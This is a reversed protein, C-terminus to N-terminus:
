WEQNQFRHSSCTDGRAPRRNAGVCNHTVMAALSLQSMTFSFAALFGHLGLQGTGCSPRNSAGATAVRPCVPTCPDSVALTALTSRRRLRRRRRRCCYGKDTLGVSLLM